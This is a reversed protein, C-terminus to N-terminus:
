MAVEPAPLTPDDCLSKRIFQYYRLGVTEAAEDIAAQPITGLTIVGDHENQIVEYDYSEALLVIKHVFASELGQLLFAALKKKREYTCEISAPRFTVGVENKILRGGRSNYGHRALYPGVLYEHWADISSKLSGLVDCLRAYTEVLQEEDEVDPDKELNKIIKGSSQRPDNPLSAGYILAMLCRKWTRTCVRVKDAYDYKARDNGLYTQLWATEIGDAGDEHAEEFRQLLINPQSASLDYNRLEPIGTFSADKMASSCSQLMGRRCGVRGTMQVDYAPSFVSVGKGVEPAPQPDQHLVALYCRRDTDYRGQAELYEKYSPTYREGEYAQYRHWYRDRDECVSSYRLDEVDSLYQTFDTTFKTSGAAEWASRATLMRRFLITLHEEIRAPQFYTTMDKYRPLAKRLISGSAGKYNNSDTTLSTKLRKTTKKGTFLDIRTTAAMEAVTTPLRSRYEDMFVPSVRYERSRGGAKSYGTHEILPLGQYETVVLERWVGDALEEHMLQWAVPIWDSGMSTDDVMSLDDARALTRGETCAVLHFFLRQAEETCASVVKRALQAAAQSTSHFTRIFGNATSAEPDRKSSKKSPPASPM